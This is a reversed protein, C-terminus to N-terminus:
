RAPLTTLSDVAVRIETDPYTMRLRSPRASDGTYDYVIEWGDQRLLTTRTGGREREVTHRSGPHGAGRIWWALGRVPIPAGLVNATLSEWDTAETVRGDPFTLRVRAADGALEAVTQGLPTALVLEDGTDRHAWRFNAAAAESRHRASLRGAADFAADDVPVGIREREGPFTACAAVFAALAAVGTARWTM